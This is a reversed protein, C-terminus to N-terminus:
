RDVSEYHGLRLLPIGESKAAGPARHARGSCGLLRLVRISNELSNRGFRDKRREGDAARLMESDAVRCSIIAV